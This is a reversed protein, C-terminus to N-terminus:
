GMIGLAAGPIDSHDNHDGMASAMVDYLTFIYMLTVKIMYGTRASEVGEGM